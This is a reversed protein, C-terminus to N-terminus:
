FHELLDFIGEHHLVSAYGVVMFSRKTEPFSGCQSATSYLVGRAVSAMTKISSGLGRSWCGLQTVGHNLVQLPSLHPSLLSPPPPYRPDKPPELERGCEKAAQTELFFLVEQRAIELLAWVVASSSRRALSHFHHLLTSPYPSPLCINLAAPVGTAVFLSGPHAEECPKWPM